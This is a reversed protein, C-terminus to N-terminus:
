AFPEKKFTCKSPLWIELQKALTRGDSCCPLVGTKAAVIAGDRM